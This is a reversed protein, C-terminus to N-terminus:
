INCRSYIGCAAVILPQETGPEYCVAATIHLWSVRDEICHESNVAIKQTKLSATHRYKHCSKHDKEAHTMMPEDLFCFLQDSPPKSNCYLLDDSNQCSM